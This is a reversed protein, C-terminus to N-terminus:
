HVKQHCHYSLISDTGRKKRRGILPHVTTPGPSYPHDASNHSFFEETVKAANTILDIKNRLMTAERFVAVKHVIISTVFWIMVLQPIVWKWKAEKKECKEELPHGYIYERKHYPKHYGWRERLGGEAADVVERLEDGRAQARGQQRRLVRKRQLRQLLLRQQEGQMDDALGRPPVHPGDVREMHYDSPSLREQIEPRADSRAFDEHDIRPVDRDRM